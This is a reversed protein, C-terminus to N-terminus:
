DFEDGEEDAQPLEDDNDEEPAAMNEGVGDEDEDDVIKLGAHQM